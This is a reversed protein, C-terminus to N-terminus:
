TKQRREHLPTPALVHLRGAPRSIGGDPWVFWAYEVSDTKGGSLFSPRNPLVYVDPPHQRMLAARAASALFNLRLLMVVTAQRGLCFDLIERAIRFPPNTIIVDPAQGSIWDGASLLDGIYLRDPDGIATTLDRQCAPRLEAASWTIDDRLRTCARILAGDGACPEM